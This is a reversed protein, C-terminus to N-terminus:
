LPCDPCAAAWHAPLYLVIGMLLWIIVFHIVNDFVDFYPDLCAQIVIAVSGLVFMALWLVLFM